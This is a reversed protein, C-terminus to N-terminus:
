ADSMRRSVPPRRRGASDPQILCGVAMSRFAQARLLAFFEQPEYTVDYDPFVASPCRGVFSISSARQGMTARLHRAVAVPSAALSVLSNALDAGSQLLRQRVLPCACLITPAPGRRSELLRLAAEAVLEDGWSLPIALDFGLAGCANALQIPRAPLAEILTDPGIVLVALKEPSRSSESEM